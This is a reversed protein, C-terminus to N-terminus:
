VPEANTSICMHRIPIFAPAASMHPRHSLMLMKALM